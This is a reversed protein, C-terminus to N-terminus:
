DQEGSHVDIYAARLAVLHLIHPDGQEEETLPAPLIRPDAQKITPPGLPFRPLKVIIPKSPDISEFHYQEAMGVFGAVVENLILDPLREGDIKTGRFSEGSDYGLIHAAENRRQACTTHTRTTMGMLVAAAEHRRELALKEAAPNDAQANTEEAIQKAEEWIQKTLTGGLIGHNIAWKLAESRTSPEGDVTGVLEILASITPVAKDDCKCSTKYLKRVDTRLEALLHDETLRAQM